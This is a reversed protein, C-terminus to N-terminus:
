QPRATPTITLTVRQGDREVIIPAAQDIKAGILADSYDQLNAVKQGAFEVIVDGAELGAKDAPGGPRVDSLRVGVVGSAAMDPITGTYARRSMRGPAPASREVRAYEVTLDPKAVDETRKHPERVPDSSASSDPCAPSTCPTTNVGSPRRSTETPASSVIRIQFATVPRCSKHRSPCRPRHSKPVRDSPEAPDISWVVDAESGFESYLFRYPTPELPPLPTPTASGATPSVNTSPTSPSPTPTTTDNAGGNCAVIIGVILAAAAVALPAWLRRAQLRLPM